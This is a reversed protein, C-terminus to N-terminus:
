LSLSFIRRQEDWGCLQESWSGPLMAGGHETDRSQLTYRAPWPRSRSGSVGIPV